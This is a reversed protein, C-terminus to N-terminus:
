KKYRGIKSVEVVAKHQVVPIMNTTNDYSDYNVAIRAIMVMMVIVTSERQPWRRVARPGGQSSDMWM